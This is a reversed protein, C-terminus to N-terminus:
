EKLLTLSVASYKIVHLEELWFRGQFFLVFIVGGGGLFFFALLFCLQLHLLVFKSLCM